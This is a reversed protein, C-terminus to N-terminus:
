FTSFSKLSAVVAKMVFVIPTLKVKQKELDAKQSIRFDELSTIDAEGFQTVHPIMMWNRQLNKGSIKQLSFAAQWKLKVLNPSILAPCAPFMLPAGTQVQTFQQKVYHKACRREISATKPRQWIHNLNVGLERAFRRM